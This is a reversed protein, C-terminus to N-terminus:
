LHSRASERGPKGSRSRAFSSALVPSAPAPAMQASATGVAMAVATAAVGTCRLADQMMAPMKTLDNM